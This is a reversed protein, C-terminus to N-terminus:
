DEKPYRNGMKDLGFAARIEDVSYKDFVVEQRGTVLGDQFGENYANTLMRNIEERTFWLEKRM